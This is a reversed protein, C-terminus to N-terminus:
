AVHKWGTGAAANFCASRSVEFEVALQDYTAGQQRRARILRVKDDNLKAAPRGTGRSIRGKEVMDAHNTQPTGLFLHRPNVCSPNDCRHLVWLRGEIPGNHLIWSARSAAMLPGFAKCKFQGYGKEFRNGTWPWCENDGGVAVNRAFYDLPAERLFRGTKPDIAM